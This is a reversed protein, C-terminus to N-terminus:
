TIQVSYLRTGRHTYLVHDPVQVIHLPVIFQGNYLGPHSCLYQGAIQTNFMM